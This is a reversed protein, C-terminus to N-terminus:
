GCGRSLLRLLTGFKGRDIYGGGFGLGGGRNAFVIAEEGCIMSIKVGGFCLRSTAAEAPLSASSPSEIGKKAKTQTREEPYSQVHTKIM